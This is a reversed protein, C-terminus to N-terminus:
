PLALGERGPHVNHLSPQSREFCLTGARPTGGNRGEGACATNSPYEDGREHLELAKAVGLLSPHSDRICM